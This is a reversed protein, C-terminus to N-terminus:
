KGNGDSFDAGRLDYVRGLPTPGTEPAYDMPRLNMGTVHLSTRDIFLAAWAGTTFRDTGEVHRGFTGRVVALYVREDTSRVRGGMIWRTAADRTTAVIAIRRLDDEGWEAAWRVVTEGVRTLVDEPIADAPAPGDPTAEEPIAEEPIAEEPRDSPQGAPQGAPQGTPQGTPQGPHKEEASPM